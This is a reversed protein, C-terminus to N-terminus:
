RGTAADLKAAAEIALAFTKPGDLRRPVRGPCARTMWFEGGACSRLTQLVRQIFYPAARLLRGGAFPALPLGGLAESLAEAAARENDRGTRRDTTPAPRKPWERIEVPTAIRRL